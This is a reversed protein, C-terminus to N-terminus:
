LMLLVILAVLDRQKDHAFDRLLLSYFAIYSVALGFLLLSAAVSKGTAFLYVM